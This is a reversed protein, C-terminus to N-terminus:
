STIWKILLLNMRVLEMVILSLNVPPPRPLLSSSTWGVGMAPEELKQQQQQQLHSHHQSYKDFSDSLRYSSPRSSTDSTQQELTIPETEEKLPPIAAKDNRDPTRKQVRDSQSGQSPESEAKSKDSTERRSM